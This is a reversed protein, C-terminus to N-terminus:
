GDVGLWTVCTVDKLTRERQEVSNYLTHWGLEYMLGRFRILGCCQLRKGNHTGKKKGDKLACTM